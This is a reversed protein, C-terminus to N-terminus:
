YRNTIYARYYIPFRYFWMLKTYTFIVEFTRIKFDYVVNSLYYWYNLTNSIELHNDRIWDM